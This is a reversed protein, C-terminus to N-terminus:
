LISNFFFSIEKINFISWKEMSCKKNSILKQTIDRWQYTMFYSHLHPKGLGSEMPTIQPTIIHPIHQSLGRLYYYLIVGEGVKHPSNVYM